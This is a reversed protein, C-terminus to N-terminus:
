PALIVIACWNNAYSLYLTGGAQDTAIAFQGQNNSDAAPFNARTTILTSPVANPVTIWAPNNTTPVPISTGAM